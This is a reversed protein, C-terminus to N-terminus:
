SLQDVQWFRTSRFVFCSHYGDHEAIAFPTVRKFDKAQDRVNTITKLLTLIMNKMM